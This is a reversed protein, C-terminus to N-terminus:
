KMDKIFWDGDEKVMKFTVKDTKSAMKDNYSMVGEATATTESDITITLDKIKLIDDDSMTGVSLGFMDSLSVGYGTKGILM